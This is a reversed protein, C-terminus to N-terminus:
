NLTGVKAIKKEQGMDLNIGDCSTCCYSSQLGLEIKSYHSVGSVVWEAFGLSKVSHRFM